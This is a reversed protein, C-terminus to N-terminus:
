VVKALAAKDVDWDGGGVSPILWHQRFPGETEDYCRVAPVNYLIQRPCREVIRCRDSLMAPPGQRLLGSRRLSFDGARALREVEM